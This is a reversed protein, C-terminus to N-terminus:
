LKAEYLTRMYPQPNFRMVYTNESFNEAVHKATVLYPYDPEVTVFFGTANATFTGNEKRTGFFAVCQQFEERTRM